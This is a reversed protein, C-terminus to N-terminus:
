HNLNMEYMTNFADDVKEPAELGYFAALVYTAVM